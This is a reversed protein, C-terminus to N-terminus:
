IDEGGGYKGSIHCLDRVENDNDVYDNNCIWCKTSNQFNENDEKTMVLTKKLHKRM